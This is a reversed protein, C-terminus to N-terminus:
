LNTLTNYFALWKNNFLFANSSENCIHKEIIVHELIQSKFQMVNLAIGKVNSSHIYKKALLICYNM